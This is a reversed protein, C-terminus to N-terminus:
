LNDALSEQLLSTFQLGWEFDFIMKSSKLLLKFSSQLKLIYLLNLVFIYKEIIFSSNKDQLFIESDNAMGFLIGLAQIQYNYEWPWKVM